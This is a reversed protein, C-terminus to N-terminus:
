FIYYKSNRIAAFALRIGRLTANICVNGTKNNLLETRRFAYFHIINFMIVTIHKM